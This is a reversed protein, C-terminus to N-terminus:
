YEASKPLMIVSPARIDKNEQLLYKEKEISRHIYIRQTYYIHKKYIYFYIDQWLFTYM